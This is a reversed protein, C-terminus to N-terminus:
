LAGELNLITADLSVLSGSLDGSITLSKSDELDTFNVPLAVCAYANIMHLKDLAYAPTDQTLVILSKDIDLETEPVSANELGLNFKKLYFNCTYYYGLTGIGRIRWRRAIIPGPLTIKVVQQDNTRKSQQNVRVWTDTSEDLYFVQVYLNNLSVSSNKDKTLTTELIYCDVEIPNKFVLESIVSIPYGSSAQYALYFGAESFSTNFDLGNKPTITGSLISDIASVTGISADSPYIEGQSHNVSQTDIRHKVIAPSYFKGTVETPISGSEGPLSPNVNFIGAYNFENGILTGAGNTPDTLNLTCDQGVSQASAFLEFSGVANEIVFATCEAQPKNSNLLLEEMSVTSPFVFAVCNRTGAQVINRAMLPLLGSQIM